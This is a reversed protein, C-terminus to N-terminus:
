RLHDEPDFLDSIEGNLLMSVSDSVFNSTTKSKVNKKFMAWALSPPARFRVFVSLKRDRYLQLLCWIQVFYV